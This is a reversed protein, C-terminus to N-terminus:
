GIAAAKSYHNQSPFYTADTQLLTQIAPVLQADAENKQVYGHAGTGIAAALLAEDSHMSVFVIRISSAIERIRKAAKLGSMVPMNIDLIAIDPRFAECLRVAEMGDGAEGCVVWGEEAELLRRLQRRVLAHDDALVIRM